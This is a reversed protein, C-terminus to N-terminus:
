AALAAAAAAVNSNAPIVVTAGTQMNVLFIRAIGLYQILVQAVVVGKSTQSQPNNQTSFTIQYAQILPASGPGPNQLGDLFADLMDYGTTFFTSDIDQGILQGLPSNAGGALSRALFSTLRPWEDGYTTVQASANCGIRCGFQAGAPIPNTIVDIAASTLVALEDSGYPIGTVTRQTAAVGYAQKNLPSQQPQLTSNIGVGFSSPGMLRQVGSYNDNWYVWDGLWRKLWAANPGFSGQTQKATAGETPTEGPPGNTHVLIGQSVGFAILNPEQTEDDFDAIVLDSVGSNTFAYVGTRPVTNSGVFEASTLNSAGDTGGSLNGNAAIPTATSTGASALQLQSPGRLPSNGPRAASSISM